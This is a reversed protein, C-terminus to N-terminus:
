IMIQFTSEISSYAFSGVNIAVPIQIGTVLPALCISLSCLKDNSYQSLINCIRLFWNLFTSNHLIIHPDCM